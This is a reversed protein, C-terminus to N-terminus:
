ARSIGLGDHLREDSKLPVSFAGSYGV